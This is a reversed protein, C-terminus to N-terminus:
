AKETIRVTTETVVIFNGRLSKEYKEILRQLVVIKNAPQEDELRLLIVGKHPKKERFVLEGFDKDNTILIRNQEYAKQIVNRDDAGRIEDFVSVVDHNQLRLWQAVAPGTCEDVLFRM